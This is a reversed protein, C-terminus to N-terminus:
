PTQCLNRPRVQREFLATSQLLLSIGAWQRVLTVPFLPPGFDAFLRLKIMLRYQRPQPLFKKSSVPIM